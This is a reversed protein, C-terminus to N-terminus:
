WDFSSSLITVNLDEDVRVHYVLTYLPEKEEWIRKYTFIISKEGPAVGVLSFYYWGGAGPPPINPEGEPQWDLEYKSLVRLLADGSATEWQWSYGTSQNGKLVIDPQMVPVYFPQTKVGIEGDTQLCTYRIAFIVRGQKLQEETVCWIGQWTQSEGAKLTPTGFEEIIRGDPNYLALPGPMDEDSTNTVCITVDVEQPGDLWTQSLEMQLTVPCDTEALVAPILCLLVLMCILLKKMLVVEKDENYVPREEGTLSAWLFKCSGGYAAMKM